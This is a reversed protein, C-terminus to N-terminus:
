FLCGPHQNLQVKLVRRRNIKRRDTGKTRVGSSSFLSHPVSGM